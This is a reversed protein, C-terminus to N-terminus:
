LYKEAYKNFLYDALSCIGFSFALIIALAGWLPWGVIFIIWFLLKEKSM